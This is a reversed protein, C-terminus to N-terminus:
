ARIEKPRRAPQPGPRRGGKRYTDAEGAAIARKDRQITTCTVGLERSISRCSRGEALYQAVLARRAQMEAVDLVLLDDRFQAQRQMEQAAVLAMRAAIVPEFRTADDLRFARAAVHSELLSM